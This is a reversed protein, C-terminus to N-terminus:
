AARSERRRRSPRMAFLAILGALAASPEPVAAFAAALDNEFGSPAGPIPHNPLRGNYNQALKVLDNFDTVGDYTFDGNLWWADTFASVITNYNQALQILDEFEVVGDVNADGLLTYRVLVSSGDVDTGAFRRPANTPAYGVSYTEPDEAAVSSNIGPGGWRNTPGNYGSLIAVRVAALTSAAAAPTPAHDV